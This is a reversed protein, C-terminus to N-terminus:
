PADDPYLARLPNGSPPAAPGIANHRHQNAPEGDTPRNSRKKGFRLRLIMRSGNGEAFTRGQSDDLVTRQSFSIASMLGAGSWSSPNGSSKRSHIAEPDSRRSM